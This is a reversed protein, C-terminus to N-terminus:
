IDNLYDILVNVNEPFHEIEKSYLRCIEEFSAACTLSILACIKCSSLIFLAISYIDVDNVAKLYYRYVFYRCVECIRDNLLSIYNNLEKDTISCDQTQYIFQKWEDTLIECDNKLICLYDKLFNFDIDIHEQFYVLDIDLLDDAATDLIIKQLGFFDASSFDLIYSRSSILKDLIEDAGTYDPKPYANLNLNNVILTNAATCSLSLAIETFGDYEEIFRPHQRCVKPTFDEGYAIHIDCLKKDNLFPCDGNKLEFCLEGDSNFKISDKITLSFNDNILEYKDSTSKDVNIEWKACCTDPCDSALCSFDNYYSPYYYLM